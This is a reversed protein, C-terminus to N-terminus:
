KNLHRIKQFSATKKSNLKKVLGVIGYIDKFDYDANAPSVNIHQDGWRAFVTIIGVEKAGSIDREPWDGCYIVEDPRLKLKKLAFLFPKTSPKREGTDDFSVILDLWPTLHLRTLRNYAQEGPADSIVGIKLGMRLLEKFTIEVHPYTYTAMDRGRQYGIIGASLLKKDIKGTKKVLAQEIVSQSEIDTAHYIKFIEDYIERYPVELGVNIMYNCAMEVATRKMRMFDLLTNDLDTLFAKIM